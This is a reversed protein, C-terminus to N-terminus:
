WSGVMPILEFFRSLLLLGYWFARKWQEDEVTPPGRPAKRRHAGVDQASRIGIGVMTWCAQPASCGQLFHVSLQSSPTLILSKRPPLFPCVCYFQLDYLSPPDLLSKKILQVQDFYEWGNSHYGEVGELKVRVDSSFRAGVACVLLLTAGFMEHTHHLGQEISREFTPRHILPLFIDVNEFYHGILSKM